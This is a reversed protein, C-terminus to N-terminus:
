ATQEPIIPPDSPLVPDQIDEMRIFGVRIKELIADAILRQVVEARTNGHLGQWLLATVGEYVQPTVTCALHKRIPKPKSM